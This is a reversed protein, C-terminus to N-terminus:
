YVPNRGQLLHTRIWTVYDREGESYYQQSLYQIGKEKWSHALYYWQQKEVLKPM